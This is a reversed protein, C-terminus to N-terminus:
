RRGSASYLIAVTTSPRERCQHAPLLKQPIGVLGQSRRARVFAAGVGLHSIPVSGAPSGSSSWPLPCPDSSHLSSSPFPAIIVPILLHDHSYSSSQPFLSMILPVLHHEQSPFPFLILPVLRNEQCHLSPWTPLARRQTISQGKVGSVGHSWAGLLPPKTDRPVMETTGM